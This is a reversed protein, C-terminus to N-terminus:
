MRGVVEGAKMTVRRQHEKAAAHLAGAMRDANDGPLICEYIKGNGFLIRLYVGRDGLEVHWETAKGKSAHIAPAGNGSM